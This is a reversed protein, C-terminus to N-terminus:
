RDAAARRMRSARRPPYLGLDAVSKSRSASPSKAFDGSFDKGCV